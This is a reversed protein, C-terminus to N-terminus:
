LAVGDVVEQDLMEETVFGQIHLFPNQSLDLPMPEPLRKHRRVLVVMMPRLPFRDNKAVVRCIEGTNLRVLCGVPLTALVRILAKLIKDPFTGRERQLVEKIADSPCLGSRAPRRRTLSEILGALFVIHAHEHIERDLGGSPSGAGDTRERLQALVDIVGAHSPGLGQVLKAEDKQTRGIGAEYLLAALGLKRLQDPAYNLQTGIKLSLACVNVAKPAPNASGGGPSFFPLLLVDSTQLSELLAGLMMEPITVSFSTRARVSQLVEETIAVARHFVDKSARLDRFPVERSGSEPGRATSGSEPGLATLKESADHPVVSRSVGGRALPGSEAPPSQRSPRVLRILRHFDGTATKPRRPGHGRVLDTLTM